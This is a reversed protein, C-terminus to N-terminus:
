LDAPRLLFRRPTGRSYHVLQMGWPAPISQKRDDSARVALRSTENNCSSGSDSPRVNSAGNVMKYANRM